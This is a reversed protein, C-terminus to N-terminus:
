SIDCTLAICCSYACIETDLVFASEYLHKYCITLQKTKVIDDIDLSDIYNFLLKILLPYDNNFIHENKIMLKRCKIAYGNSILKYLNAILTQISSEDQVKISGEVTIKQLTNITKRIDPFCNKVVKYLDEETYSIGEEELIHKMRTMVSQENHTINFVQCRSQLPAIIRHKHNATLIFRTINSYEEMVNRLIRQSDRTLGDAEDLIIVKIPFLSKTKAYNIVKMRITDIGNEDSANIYLHDCEILDNVIIKALTTKGIGPNGVFMVNPIEGTQKAKEILQVISNTNSICYGDDITKPRYKEVLLSDLM